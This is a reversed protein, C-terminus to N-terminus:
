KSRWCRPELIRVRPSILNPSFPFSRYCTYENFNSSTDAVFGKGKMCKEAAQAFVLERPWGTIKVSLVAIGAESQCEEISQEISSSCSALSLLAIVAYAYRMTLVLISELRPADSRM